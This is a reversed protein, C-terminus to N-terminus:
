STKSPATFSGCIPQYECNKCINKFDYTPQFPIELNKIEKLIAEIIQSIISLGEEKQVEKFPNLFATEDILNKGLLFYYGEINQLPIGYKKSYVLMYLPIQLSGINKAWTQRHNLDIRDFKIKLNEQKGTTKYDVIFTKGDVSEVRDIRCTFKSHFIEEEVSIVKINQRKSIKKYYDVIDHLRKSIQLKLLYVRGKIKDGYKKFFIKDLIIDIERSFDKEKLFKGTMVEFYEKLAEHVIVGIDSRDLDASIDKHKKVRLVYSYYFKLGCRLYDDLSTASFSFDDLIKMMEETKPVDQPTKSALNVKYVISSIFDDSSLINGSEKEINWIIKEIFRSREDKDTKLYILHVEEAVNVLTSFYYYILKEREHYTPLGLTKRLSYPMLYDESLDPFVGENLDLFILRKFKISRTELFGLIQLGRLPIGQFPIKASSIFNKFFNFYSERFEFSFNSILSHSLKDFETLFAEVYPYFLPHYRATSNEYIFILVDECAKIFEKINKFSFFKKITNEHIFRLHHSVAGPTLFSENVRQAIMFPLHREIWELEVFLLPEEFKFLEEMKHLIVRSIEASEKLLINKTYPHLMFKLYLPVYVTDDASSLLEFLTIFFGYIPTRSLPYGMSINYDKENLYPIGQRLLPFLTDSKPLVIVTKEDIETEKVIKGVVKVEGHTDPCSYFDIKKNSVEEYNHSIFIFNEMKSIKELIGKEARTFTFFGAFILKKFELFLTLDAESVTRYRLARTLLNRKILEDYFVKYTLSLFELANKSTVPVEILSEVDKLKEQSVGEIYLEEFISFLKLGFSFFNDFKKFFQTLSNNKLCIDYIIGVADVQEIPISDSIKKFIFDIFEDMSFIYPPIFSAKVREAIEKRLYHAPRKGPFIVTNKSYDFGESYLLSAVVEILDEKSSIILKKEDSIFKLRDLFEQNLAM